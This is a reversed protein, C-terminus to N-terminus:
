DLKLILGALRKASRLLDERSIIGQEMGNKLSLLFGSAMKIDNGAALEVCHEGHGWWDSMVLGEYGWEGRLIDTLLEKNESARRGNIINYSSMVCWPKAEKIAIEFPRLYIERIARETARSDSDLRNAEKNNLAFHKVTAAVRESQIGRVTGAAIKGALLPDESYYEFNRGCLPNRHINMAPTLWVAINNERVESGGLAGAEYALDPDFTCAVLTACPLATTCVGCEPRIRLGAPGDATMIPPIGYDPM